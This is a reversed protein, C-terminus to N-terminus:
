KLIWETAFVLFPTLVLVILLIERLKKRKFVEIYRALIAATPFFTLIVPYNGESTNILTIFIAIILFSSILRISIIRGHGFRTLNISALLTALIVFALYLNLKIQSLWYSSLTIESSIFFEYHEQLFDVRNTLVLWSGLILSITFFAVLPILWNKVSKPDYFYISLFVLIMFLIAWDYFFSSIMIWLSADFIKQPVNKLTRISILRRAALLMFFSCLIANNDTVVEPFVVFLLVYFLIAYSNSENIQNRRVIFNVLFVTFLLVGTVLGQIIISATDFDIRFLVLQVYWYLLFLFALLIIYNVPKTKGFVSSIM